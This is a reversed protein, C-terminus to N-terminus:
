AGRTYALSTSIGVANTVAVAASGASGAPMVAVIVSDSVVVFSTANTAGFKVTTTGTFGSGNIRVQEAAAADSPLASLVAPVTAATGPNTITSLAGDGTLKVTASDVDKVGDQAREWGVITVGQFAEPGGNKDYWRVGVRAADGFQGVCARLIEQAPDYVGSVTRRFFTATLGFANGTIEFSEWGDTDYASTEVTNPDVSPKMSSIGNLQTWGGALTLDTTIDLRFKRALATTM